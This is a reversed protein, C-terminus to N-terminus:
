YLRYNCESRYGHQVVLVFVFRRSLLVFYRLRITHGPEVILFPLLMGVSLFFSFFVLAGLVLCPGKKGKMLRGDTM